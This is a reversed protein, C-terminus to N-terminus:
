HVQDTREATQEDLPETGWLRHMLGVALEASPLEVGLEQARAIAARLDKQAVEADKRRQAHPVSELMQLRGANGVYRNAETHAVLQAIEAGVGAHEALRTAEQGAAMCLYRYLNIALKADLGAGQAGLHLVLGGYTSMVPKARAFADPDGGVMVALNGVSLHGRAGSVMADLMYVGGELAEQALRGLTEHSVTSHILVISGARAGALVGDAGLCAELLQENTNVVVEIVDADRAAERPTPAVRVREPLAALFPATAQESRDCLTAFYGRALVCHLMAAGMRGVGVFGIRERPVEDPGSM